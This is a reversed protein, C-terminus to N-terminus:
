PRRELRVQRFQQVFQLVALSAQKLYTNHRQAVQLPTASSNKVPMWASQDGYWALQLRNGRQM